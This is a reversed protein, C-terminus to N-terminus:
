RSSEIREKVGMWKDLLFLHFFQREVIHLGFGLEFGFFIGYFFSTSTVEGNRFRGFPRMFAPANQAFILRRLHFFLELQVSSNKKTKLKLRIYTRSESGTNIEESLVDEYEYLKM